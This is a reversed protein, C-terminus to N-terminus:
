NFKKGGGTPLVFPTGTAKNKGAYVEVGYYQKMIEPTIIEEPRGDAAIAGNHMLVLRHCFLAALNLDHTVSIITVGKSENLRALINTIQVQYNIDLASTPEDLLLIETNQAIAAALVVRQKEGQSLETVSRDKFRFTDTEEMAEYAILRDDESEFDFPGLYPHRGMLVFDEVKFPFFFSVEQPVVAVLQAAKRRSMRTLDRGQLKINGSSPKLFGALLKILTSKGAGNPGILGVFQGRVVDLDLRNLVTQDRYSFVVKELNVASHEV